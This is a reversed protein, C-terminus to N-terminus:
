VCRIRYQRFPLEEIQAALALEANTATEDNYIYDAIAARIAGAQTLGHRICWQAFQTVLYDPLKTGIM